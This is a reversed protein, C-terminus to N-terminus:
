PSALEEIDIGAAELQQRFGDYFEDDTLQMGSWSYVTNLIELGEETETLGLFVEVIQDRVDESVSPHFSITDNPIPVSEAIVVIQDMVDPFDEEVNTRADVFTAGAECDGNYVAIVVADHGGADIIEALDAEPDLGEAQMTISPIIWGSTSTPDPRCFTKGALDAVSEIGSGARTIVQGQYFTTGFRESALAVEACGREKAVVYNFTNLAGIHAEESCMAEVAATFDTTVLPTVILGTEDEIAAAIDDAGSLVAETDQSPVLVWVIPNEETGIEEEAYAGPGIDDYTVDFEPGFWKTNIQQLFGDCKMQEIVANFPEVLDSGQPFIFGLEDSKISPGILKLEGTNAGQYGLGSVEDIVTGDTDGDLVAQVVQGFTDFAIIRDEGVIEAATNYNTTGVQESLILEPDSAFEEINTFRDEDIRVLLRQEINIYGDSFDVQEAREPTITIGDAAMDFQGEAVSQIMTDWAFEVWEPTCNMRRCAENVFDYDWGDAEGTDLSVFNFPLYANEIAISVTRGGLDPVEFQDCATAAPETEAPPPPPETEVPPPETEPAATPAAPQCAALVMSAFVLISIITYLKKM